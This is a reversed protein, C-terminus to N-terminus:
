SYFARSKKPSAGKPSLGRPLGAGCSNQLVVGGSNTPAISEFSQFCAKHSLKM